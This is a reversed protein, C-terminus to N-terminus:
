WKQINRTPPLPASICSRSIGLSLCQSYHGCASPKISVMSDRARLACVSMAVFNHEHLMVM